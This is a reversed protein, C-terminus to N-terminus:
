GERIGRNLLYNYWENAETGEQRYDGVLYVPTGWSPHSGDTREECIFFRFCTTDAFQDRCGYGFNARLLITKEEDIVQEIRNANKLYKNDMCPYCIIKERDIHYLKEKHLTRGCYECVASEEETGETEETGKEQEANAFLDERDEDTMDLVELLRGTDADYMSKTGPAPDDYQVRLNIIRSEKKTRLCVALKAADASLNRIRERHEACFTKIEEKEDEIVAMTESLERAMDLLEADDLPVSYEVNELIM